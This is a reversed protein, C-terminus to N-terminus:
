RNNEDRASTRETNGDRKKGSYTLIFGIIRDRLSERIPEFNLHILEDNKSTRIVEGLIDLRENRNIFFIVEVHDGMKFRKGPNTISAGGGGLDYFNTRVPKESSGAVRVYVPVSIKKRYYKRKQSTKIKESHALHITSNEAKQVHTSFSFIGNARQFYVNLVTGASPAIVGKELEVVLSQSTVAKIRGHFKRIKGQAIFLHIGQSLEGTSHIPSERNKLTLGLKVRLASISSEPVNGLSKEKQACSNFIHAKTFLLHKQTEPSKLHRAMLNLIEVESPNLKLKEIYHKFKENALEIKLKLQKKNQIIYILVLIGFFSFVFILALAIQLPSQILGKSVNSLFSSLKREDLVWM